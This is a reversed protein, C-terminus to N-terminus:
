VRPRPRRLINNSHESPSYFGAIRAAQATLYPRAPFLLSGAGLLPGGADAGSLLVCCTLAVMPAHWWAGAVRVGAGETGLDPLAPPHDVV